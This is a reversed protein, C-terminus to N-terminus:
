VLVNLLKVGDSLSSARNTFSDVYNELSSIRSKLPKLGMFYNQRDKTYNGNILDDFIM